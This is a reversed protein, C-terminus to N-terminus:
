LSSYKKLNKLYNESNDIEAQIDIWNVMQSYAYSCLSQENLIPTINGVGGESDEYISFEPISNCFCIYDFTNFNLLLYTKNEYFVKLVPKNDLQKEEVRIMVERQERYTHIKM